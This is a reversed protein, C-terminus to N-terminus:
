LDASNRRETFSATMAPATLPGEKLLAKRVLRRIMNMLTFATANASFLIYLGGTVSKDQDGLNWTINNGGVVISLGFGALALLGLMQDRLALAFSSFAARAAPTLYGGCCSCDAQDAKGDFFWCYVLPPTIDLLLVCLQFVPALLYWLKVEDGMNEQNDSYIKLGFALAIIWSVAHGIDHGSLTGGNSAKPSPGNTEKASAPKVEMEITVAATPSATAVANAEMTAKADALAQRHFKTKVPAPKKVPAPQASSVPTTSLGSSLKLQDVFQRREGLPLKLEKLDELLTGKELAEISIELTYGESEFLSARSELGCSKLLEALNAPKATTSM